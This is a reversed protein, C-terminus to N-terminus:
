KVKGIGLRRGPHVEERDEGQRPRLAYETGIFKDRKREQKGVEKKKRMKEARKRCESHIFLSTSMMGLLM